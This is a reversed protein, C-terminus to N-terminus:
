FIPPRMRQQKYCPPPDQTGITPAPKAICAYHPRHNKEFRAIKERDQTVELVPIM